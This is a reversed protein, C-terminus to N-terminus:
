FIQVRHNERDCVIIEGNLSIQIGEIGMFEGSQSGASGFESVYSYDNPRFIQIRSNGSDAVLIFGEGDKSYNSYLFFFIVILAQVFFKNLRGQSIGRPHKFQGQHSGESGFSM